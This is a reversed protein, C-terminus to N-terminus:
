HSVRVDFLIRRVDWHYLLKEKDFGTDYYTIKSPFTAVQDHLKMRAGHTDPVPYWLLEFKIISYYKIEDATKWVRDKRSESATSTGVGTGITAHADDTVSKPDPFPLFSDRVTMKVKPTMSELM